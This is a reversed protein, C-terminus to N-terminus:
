NLLMPLRIRPAIPQSAPGYLARFQGIWYANPEGINIFGDARPSFNAWMGYMQPWDCEGPVREGLIRFGRSHALSIDQQQFSALGCGGMNDDNIIIWQAGAAAMAAQKAAAMEPTMTTFISARNGADGWIAADIVRWGAFRHTWPLYRTQLNREMAETLWDRFAARRPEAQAEYEAWTAPPLAGAGFRRAYDARAAQDWIPWYTFNDATNAGMKWPLVNLKFNGIMIAPVNPYDAVLDLFADVFPRLDADAQGSDIFWPSLMYPAGEASPDTTTVGRSDRLLADPYRKVFWDPPVNIVIEPIFWMNARRANELCTRMSSWDYVGEVREVLRWEGGAYIPGHPYNPAFAVCKFLGDFGTQKLTQLRSVDAADAWVIQWVTPLPPQSMSQQARPASGAANPAPHLALLLLVFVALIRSRTRLLM